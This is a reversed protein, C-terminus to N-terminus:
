EKKLVLGREYLHNKKLGTLEAVMTAAKKVPVEDLLKALLTDVELTVEEKIATKEGKILLVLEGRQQNSDQQMWRLLESLSASYVTEHLKTLERAVVAQREEGFQSIIAQLEDLVRHPSLYFILTHPSSVIPALFRLRPGAKAPLFGVFTFKDSPLGAVSLASIAACPGPIPSVTIGNQHAARVLQFGPDSILPTGADSILALTKGQENIDALLKGFMADENHEHLAVLPKNIGFHVLLKQSHRTDEAAILDVKKLTDIARRSMDDLHGIPTAVIYLCGSNSKFM